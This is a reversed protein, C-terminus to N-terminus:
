DAFTKQNKKEFFFQKRLLWFCLLKAWNGRAVRGVRAARAAHRAVVRPQMKGTIGRALKQSSLFGSIRLFHAAAIRKGTAPVAFGGYRGLTRL